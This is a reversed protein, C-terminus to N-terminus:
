CSQTTPVARGLPGRPVAHVDNIIRNKECIIKARSFCQSAAQPTYFCLESVGLAPYNGGLSRKCPKSKAVVLFDIKSFKVCTTAPRRHGEWCPASCPSQKELAQYVASMKSIVATTQKNLPRGPNAWTSPNICPTIPPQKPYKPYKCTHKSNTNHSMWDSDSQPYM